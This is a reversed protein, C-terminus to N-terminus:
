LYNILGTVTNSVKLVFKIILRLFKSINLSDMNKL